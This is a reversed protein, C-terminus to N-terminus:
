KIKEYAEEGLTTLKPSRLEVVSYPDSLIDHRGNSLFGNSTLENCSSIFEDRSMGLERSSIVGRDEIKKRCENGIALLLKHANDSLELEKM